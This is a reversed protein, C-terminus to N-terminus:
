FKWNQTKTDKHKIFFQLAFGCAQQFRSFISSHFNANIKHLKTASISVFIYERQIVAGLLYSVVAFSCKLASVPKRKKAALM